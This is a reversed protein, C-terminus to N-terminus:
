ACNELDYMAGYQRWLWRMFSVCNADCRDAPLPLRWNPGGGEPPLAPQPAPVACRTCGLPRIRDFGRVLLLHLHEQRLATRTANM